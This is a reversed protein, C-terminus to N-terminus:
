ICVVLDQVTGQVRACRHVAACTQGVDAIPPAPGISLLAKAIDAISGLGVGLLSVPLDVSYCAHLRATRAASSRLRIRSAAFLAPALALGLLRCRCLLGVLGMTTGIILSILKWLLLSASGGLQRLILGTLDRRKARRPVTLTVRVPSPVARVDM